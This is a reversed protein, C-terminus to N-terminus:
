LQAWELTKATGLAAQYFLQPKQKKIAKKEKKKKEEKKKREEKKSAKKKKKLSSKQKNKRQYHLKRQSRKRFSMAISSSTPSYGRAGKSFSAQMAFISCSHSM